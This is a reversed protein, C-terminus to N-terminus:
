KKRLRRGPAAAPRTESAAPKKTAALSKRLAELIDIPAAAVTPPEVGTAPVAKEARSEILARLREEQADKLKAPEFPTALAEVLTVALQREKSGAL